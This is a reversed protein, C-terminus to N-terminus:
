GFVDPDDEGNRWVGSAELHLNRRPEETDFGPPDSEPELLLRVPRLQWVM